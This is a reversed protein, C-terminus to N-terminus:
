EVDEIELMQFPLRGERGVQEKVLVEGYKGLVGKEGTIRHIRNIHTYFSDKSKAVM